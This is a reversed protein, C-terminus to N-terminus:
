SLDVFGIIKNKNVFILSIKKEISIFRTNLEFGCKEYFLKLKNKVDIRKISIRSHDFYSNNVILVAFLNKFLYRGSFAWGKIAFSDNNRKIEELYYSTKNLSIIKKNGVYYNDNFKKVNKFWDLNKDFQATSKIKNHFLPCQICQNDYTEETLNKRLELIRPSNWLKEMPTENINGINQGQSCAYVKGDMQLKLQKFPQKCDSAM